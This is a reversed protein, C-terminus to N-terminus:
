PIGGHNGRTGERGERRVGTRADLAREKPVIIFALDPAVPLDKVSPFAPVAAVSDASPNIPFVPGTFGGEILHRLIANGISGKRRSAGIVAISRPRLIPDLSGHASM